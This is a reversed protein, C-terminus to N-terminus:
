EDGGVREADVMLPVAKGFVDDQLRVRGYVKGGEFGGGDGEGKRGSGNELGSLCVLLSPKLDSDVILDAPYM